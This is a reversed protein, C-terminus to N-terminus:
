GGCRVTHCAHYAAAANEIGLKYRDWASDRCVNDATFYGYCGGVVTGFFTGCGGGVSRVGSNLGCNVCYDDSESAAAPRGPAFRLATWAGM